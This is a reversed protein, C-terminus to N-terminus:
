ARSDPLNGVWPVPTVPRRSLSMRESPSAAACHCSPCATDSQLWRAVGREVERAVYHVIIPLQSEERGLGGGGVQSYVLGLRVANKSM